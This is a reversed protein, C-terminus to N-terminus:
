FCRKECRGASRELYRERMRREQERRLEDQDDTRKQEHDSTNIPVNATLWSFSEGLGFGRELRITIHGDENITLIVKGGALIHLSGTAQINFPIKKTGKPLDFTMVNVTGDVSAELGEGVLVLGISDSANKTLGKSAVLGGGWAAVGTASVEGDISFPHLTAAERSQQMCTGTYVCVNERGDPDIVVVPRNGAYSYRNVTDLRDVKVGAPDISLFRGVVPDYYRQQMYVLGSDADNVHGTYGPGQPLGGSVPAGYPRYDYRALINGQADTKAVVTGQADTYYLHVTKAHAV